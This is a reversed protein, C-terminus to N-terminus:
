RRHGKAGGIVFKNRQTVGKDRVVKIPNDEGVESLGVNGQTVYSDLSCQSGQGRM